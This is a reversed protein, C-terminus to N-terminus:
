PKGIKEFNNTLSQNIQIKLTMWIKQPYSQQFGTGIRALGKFILGESLNGM